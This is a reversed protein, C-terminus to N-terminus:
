NEKTLNKIKKLASTLDRVDTRDIVKAFLGHFYASPSNFILGDAGVNTANKYFEGSTLGVKNIAMTSKKELPIYEVWPVPVPHVRGDGGLIPIFDVRSEGAYSSATVMVVDTDGDTTMHDTKLISATASAPHEFKNAGIVNALMEYDYYTYNYPNNQIPEFTSLPKEQYTPISLLPALDFFVSKFYENNFWIFNQRIIDVDYSYYNSPSANMTWRQAHESVIRNFRGRKYFSFDDGYGINKARLLSTMNRQALPSFMVRFQVEHNRDIAGFLVDFDANAMETFSGGDSVANEALKALKKQGKRVRKQVQKETLDEVDTAERSFNLDPSTQNGYSLATGYNYYPYPKTVSAHLTQTRRVRELRGNSGRRTETWSIIKTGHYVKTGM